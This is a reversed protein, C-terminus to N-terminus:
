FLREEAVEPPEELDLLIRKRRLGGGFGTLSGDAGIVRHCPIVIAIPNRGVTQGVQQALQRDGLAGAIEGYSRTAGFPIECLLRWTRRAFDSGDPRIPLDFDTRAGAFYDGLQEEAVALIPDDAVAAPGLDAVRRRHNAFHVGVLADGDAILLLDDVPTAIIRHRRASGPEPVGRGPVGRRPVGQRPM